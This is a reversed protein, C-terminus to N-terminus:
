LVSRFGGIVFWLRVVCVDTLRQVHLACYLISNNSLKQHDQRVNKQCSSRFTRILTINKHPGVAFLTHMKGQRVNRPSSRFAGIM